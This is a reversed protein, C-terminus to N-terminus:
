LIKLSASLILLSDSIDATTEGEGGLSFYTAVLTNNSLYIGNCNKCLHMYNSKDSSPSGQPYTVPQMTIYTNNVSATPMGVATYKQDSSTYGNDSLYTKFDALTMTKKNTFVEFSSIISSGSSMKEQWIHRYLPQTVNVMFTTSGANNNEDEVNITIFATGPKKQPTLQLTLSDESTSVKQATITDTNNSSVTCNSDNLTVSGGETDSVNVTYDKPTATEGDAYTEYSADIPTINIKLKSKGGPTPPPTPQEGATATWSTSGTYGVDDASITIIASGPTTQTDVDISIAQELGPYRAFVSVNDSRITAEINNSSYSSRKIWHIEDVNTNLSVDSFSFNSQKIGNTLMNSSTYNDDNSSLEGSLKLTKTLSLKDDDFSATEPPNGWPSLVTKITTDATDLYIGTARRDWYCHSKGKTTTQIFGDTTYISGFACYKNTYSTFNNNLLFNKVDSLEMTKKDSFIDFSVHNDYTWTHKYLPKTVNVAFTSTGVNGKTDTVKISIFAAGANKQPTFQITLKNESVSVKQVQIVNTNNSSVSCSNNNLSVSGGDPNSVTVTYDKSIVTESEPISEFCPKISTVDIYLDSGSSPAPQEGTSATWSTFGTYGGSNASITITASGPTTQTDVNISIVQELNPYRAFVSVNDSKIIAAINNSSYSSRKIWPIENVNTNLSVDSFSFNSQKINDTLSQTSSESLDASLKISKKLSVYNDGVETSGFSAGTQTTISGCVYIKNSSVYIGYVMDTFVTYTIYDQWSSPSYYYGLSRYIGGALYPRTTSTFSNDNLYKKLDSISMTKNENTIYFTTTDARANSDPYKVSWVHLYMPKIVNVTFVISGTVNSTDGVNITIFASGSTSKPTFKITFQNESITSAEAKIINENNSKVSCKSKDLSVPQGESNTVTVTYSTSTSTENGPIAEFCPKISTIDINLKSEEVPTPPTPQKNTTANWTVSGTYATSGGKTSILIEVLGADPTNLSVTIKIADRLGAYRSFVSTNDRAVISIIDSEATSDDNYAYSSRQIWQIDALDTSDGLSVSPENSNKTAYVSCSTVLIPTIISIGSLFSTIKIRKNHKM